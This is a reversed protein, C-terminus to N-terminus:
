KDLSKVVTFFAVGTSNSVAVIEKAILEQVRAQSPEDFLIEIDDATLPRRKLTQVIERSSFSQQLQKSPKRTAINIALSSDFQEAIKVLEEYEVRQVRYAPPRDITGIDIRKCPINQLVQNLRAIEDPADNIDKVFLIEMFLDGRFEQAFRKIADIINSIEINNLPRDVKKFVEKSVADLSLKVRDLKLLANYVDPSNLTTSNTLILTKTDGKILNIRDILLNLDPYLTPEGNATLTIEDIDSYRCLAEKLELIILDVEVVLDQKSVPRSPELECYICDLNCQKSLASLDVGLSRGFRRSDIPGFIVSV